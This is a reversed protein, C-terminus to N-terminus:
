PRSLRSRQRRLSQGHWRRFSRSFSTPTAYGLIESIQAASLDSHRLYKAALDARVADHIRTFSTREDALRLQLTRPAVDLARSVEGLTCPAYPILSRVVAEVDRAFRRKGRGAELVILRSALARATASRSRIPTEITAADLLLANRDQNFRLDEGFAARHLALSGKPKAHRFLVATPMWHRHLYSRLESAIVSLAFEAMQLESDHHTTTSSWSVLTWPPAREVSVLAAHTYLDFNDALEACLQGVTRANRLLVWLPGILTALRAGQAMALGWTRLRCAEAALEFFQIVASGHVLLDSDRLAAVPLGVRSALQAPRVGHARLLDSAGELIASRILPGAM